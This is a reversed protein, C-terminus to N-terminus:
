GRQFINTRWNPHHSEWSFPVIFSIPIFMLGGIIMFIGLIELWWCGNIKKLGTAVGHYARLKEELPAGDITSCGDTVCGSLLPTFILLIKYILLLIWSKTFWQLDHFPTLLTQAFGVLFLLMHYVHGKSWHFIVVCINIVYLIFMNCLWIPFPLNVQCFSLFM